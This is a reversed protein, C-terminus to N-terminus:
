MAFKIYLCIIVCAGSGALCALQTTSEMKAPQTLINKPYLSSSCTIKSKLNKGSIIEVMAKGWGKLRIMMPTPMPRLRRIKPIFSAATAPTSLKDIRPNTQAPSLKQTRRVGAVIMTLDRMTIIATFRIFATFIVTKPTMGSCSYMVFIKGTVSGAPSARLM